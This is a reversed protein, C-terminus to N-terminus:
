QWLRNMRERLASKGAESAKTDVIWRNGERRLRDGEKAEAPLDTRSIERMTRDPAECVALGGEIRDIVLTLEEM